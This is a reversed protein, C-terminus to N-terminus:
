VFSSFTIIKKIRLSISIRLCLSSYNSNRFCTGFLTFNQILISDNIHKHLILFFSGLKFKLCLVCHM